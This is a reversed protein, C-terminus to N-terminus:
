IGVRSKPKGGEPNSKKLKYDTIGCLCTTEGNGFPLQIDQYRHSGRSDSM